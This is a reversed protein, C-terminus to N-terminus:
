WFFRCYSWQLEIQLESIIIVPTISVNAIHRKYRKKATIKM